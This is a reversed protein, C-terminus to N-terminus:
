GLSFSAFAFGGGSGVDGHLVTHAVTHHVILSMFPGQLRSPM